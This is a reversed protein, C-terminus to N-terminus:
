DRAALLHRIRDALTAADDTGKVILAPTGERHPLSLAFRAL